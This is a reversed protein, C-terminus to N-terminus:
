DLWWDSDSFMYDQLWKHGSTPSYAAFTEPSIQLVITHRKPMLQVLKDRLLTPNLHGNPDLILWVHSVHHWLGLGPRESQLYQTFADREARTADGDVGVVFAKKAM